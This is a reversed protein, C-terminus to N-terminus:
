QCVEATSAESLFLHLDSFLGSPEAFRAGAHIATLVLTRATIAHFSFDFTHWVGKDLPGLQLDGDPTALDPDFGAPQAAEWWRLRSTITVQSSQNGQSFSASSFTQLNQFTLGTVQVPNRLHIVIGAKPNSLDYPVVGTEVDWDFAQAFGNPNWVATGPVPEATLCGGSTLVGLDVDEGELPDVFIDDQYIAPPFTGDALFQRMSARRTLSPQGFRDWGAYDSFTGNFDIAQGSKAAVLGSELTSLDVVTKGQGIQTVQRITDALEQTSAEPAAAALALAVVSMADASIRSLLARSQIGYRLRMEYDLDNLGTTSVKSQETLLLADGLAFPELAVQPNDNLYDLAGIWDRRFAAAGTEGLVINAQRVWEVVSLWPLLLYVFGRRPPSEAAAQRSAEAIALIEKTYDRVAAASSPAVRLVTVPTTGYRNLDDGIHVADEVGTNPGSEAVITGYQFKPLDMGGQEGITERLFGALGRVFSVQMPGFWFVRDLSSSDSAIASRTDISDCFLNIIIPRKDKLYKWAFEASLCDGVIVIRSSGLVDADAAFREEQISGDHVAFLPTNTFVGSKTARDNLISAVRLVADGRAASDGSLPVLVPVEGVVATSGQVCGTGLTLFLTLAFCSKMSTALSILSGGLSASALVLRLNADSCASARTPSSAQWQPQSSM